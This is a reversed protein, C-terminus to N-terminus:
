QSPLFTEAQRRHEPARAYERQRYAVIALATLSDDIRDPNLFLTMRHSKGENASFRFGPNQNRGCYIFTKTPYTNDYLSIYDQRFRAFQQDNMNRVMNSIQHMDGDPERATATNYRIAGRKTDRRKDGGESRWNTTWQRVARSTEPMLFVIGPILLGITARPVPRTKPNIWASIFTERENM